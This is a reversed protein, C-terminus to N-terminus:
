KKPIIIFSFSYKKNAYYMYPAHPKAGWSTDGGVGMMKHDIHLEVFDKEVIDATTRLKKETGPDFDATNHHLANFEIPNEIAKIKFGMGIQNQLSLWRVDTKHGNEQPRNYAFYQDAVKSHYLGVFTATNRDIYNEWPGRGYYILNDFERPMELKLGIRPIEPLKEKKAEFSYNVHIEGDGNIVYNIEITGDIEKNKFSTLIMVESKSVKKSSISQLMFKDAAEKWVLARKQLQNGFDNDTPARWFDIKLPANILQYENLVYSHLLGTKKSFQTVFDLGSIMIENDNEITKIPKSTNTSNKSPIVTNLEFQESAIEHGYPILTNASNQIAYINLYVDKNKDIEPLNINFEKESQPEINKPCFKGSKIIEGNELLQWTILYDDLTNFFNENKILLKGTSLDMKKFHINQYVKKIEFLAPHPKLDPDVIGNMCFNNDHYMGQPEFHGGYAWFQKGNKDTKALGQDMWDWIFGGQLQRHSKVLNWYEQFNGNSNGMAHSYECWIFPRNKDSGLWRDRVFDISAYMHGAIDTHREKIDTMREAREYHVPRKTNLAHAAKYGALFNVGTGAENGMSWVIVSPHNKDRIIMNTIREVHADKWEPNNGLTKDPDYGMGHSEINAEDYVYLGYEDCLQYWMPDNPYHSTRVANINFQKMTKIDAIMNEKNVVHGFYPNHEHRNVGKLLIPKGNVLLQGNKIESTRFGTKISTAEILQNKKNYLSIVLKYLYPNEASWKNVNLIENTFSISQEKKTSTFSSIKSSVEKGNADLLQYKVNLKQQKNKINKVDIKLNLVGNKYNNDLSADAYFDNIHTKEKAHLIVDRQIGSLRWFDQDELYSGDTFQFVQVAIKNKEKNLYPTIDFESPLKSDQSYGVKKGNVWLYFGSKVAGFQLYVEKDKWNKPLMFYTIYSGVSSQNEKVFPPNKDFPYNMNTYNPTGYGCMEWNGPVMIEDWKSDDFNSKFFELNRESIKKAYQFKWKGNLFHINKENHPNNNKANELSSYSYFTAHANERNIKFVKPNEWDNQSFINQSLVLLIILLKIKSM